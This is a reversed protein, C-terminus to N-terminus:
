VLAASHWDWGAAELELWAAFHGGASILEEPSGQEIISGRELVIVRDAERATSLRHAVTIVARGRDLVQTRLADRFEAESARDIAATAEDFLLVKPDWVLARALALLQRQGSSLHVGTGRGLDSLVTDYGQPLSQIFADAGTIRAARQAAERPVEDDGLTLNDFVSGSFLQVNQPVVGILGRREAEEIQRPDDGAIRITGDWAPYLGGVLHLISSKGAGTRGVLAVHEGARVDISVGHLVPRGTRYGFVVERLEVISAEQRAPTEALLTRQQTDDPTLLVQFIREAGSLASQVTQWDDGLATIPKFFRQFLQIFAVFTGITIHWTRFAPTSASFILASTTLVALFAMIPVDAAACLTSRNFANITQRLSTRFRTVFLAERGFAKIVEVGGLTEQLDTNMAGVARRTAREAERIRIRLVNATIVVPVIVVSSILTLLPSLIIMFVSVTVLGAMDRVANVVGSSFLTDITEVDATCRSISDGLPNKDFYSIPLRELHAFLRVRLNHLAGQSAISTLYTVAFNLAQALASVGLYLLAITLVGHMRGKALHEDFLRKTLLPQVPDLAAIALVGVGILLLLGRWPAVLSAIMRFTIRSSGGAPTTKPETAM